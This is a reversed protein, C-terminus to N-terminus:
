KLFNTDKQLRLDAETINRGIQVLLAKDPDTCLGMIECVFIVHACIYYKDWWGISCKSLRSDKIGVSM